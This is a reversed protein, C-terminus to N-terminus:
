MFLAMYIPLHIVGDKILVDKQYLIYSDGIREKFKTRFKDLSTHKKYISSKVEIPTIKKSGNKKSIMLFDIEMKNERNERDQRSYFFPKHGNTRLMQAVVNEMLMGENVNLKDFLIAKYLDNSSYDNDMFAQTVLLGTDMMYCKRTSFDSSLALGVNPNTSNYCTNTIMAEDLWMFANEYNRLRANEDITSLMYRKEKKSLQGPIEDFIALVKNSNTGAFKVADNRYLSLINRKISDVESFDKTEVYTEVAQPMGGVLMYQRFLNMMKRHLADGLPTKQEYCLKIYPVSTEDELAWLFEEFELPYMEIHVEESPIVIDQVNQKTSLLSGTEIYDYRGDKVLYKILQRAKPFQQIEDFIILTEREFFRVGYFTSLKLFFFDLNSTENNFLDRVENPINAFDILLYSKYQEKGFQECLYSKGVRRAGDILLATKGKSKDKWEVLRSYLKRKLM